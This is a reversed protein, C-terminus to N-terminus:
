DPINILEIWKIINLVLFLWIDVNRHAIILSM